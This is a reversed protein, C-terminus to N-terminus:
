LYQATNCTASSQVAWGAPAPSHSLLSPEAALGLLPRWVMGASKAMSDNGSRLVTQGRGQSGATNDRRAPADAAARGSIARQLPRPGRALTAKSIHWAHWLEQAGQTSTGIFAPFVCLALGLLQLLIGPCADSTARARAWGPRRGRLARVSIDRSM